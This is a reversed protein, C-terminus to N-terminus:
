RVLLLWGTIKPLGEKPDVVYYYTGAPLIRGNRTGNWPKAYGQSFFVQQGYRDFVTVEAGPYTDLNTILWQDNIGDNNPSFTNPIGIHKYVRVFVDSSAEGCMNSIVHLTYTINDTAGAIVPTLSSADNLYISPTWYYIINDGTASGHLQGTYGEFVNISQGADAKPNKLVTITMKTEPQTEKCSSNSVAATYTTTIKPRAIPNPIDDHDLGEAPTWKFIDANVSPVFLPVSQGECITVDNMTGVAAKDYVKVTTTKFSPCGNLTAKVTYDGEASKDAHTTIIPSAGTWTNGGPGTWEYTGSGAGSASLQLPLNICTSTIAPLTIAPTQFVSIILPDSYIRCNEAGGKSGSLIGLRYEYEGAVAKSPPISLTLTQAGTIDTWAGNNIKRQWQYSPNDYGIPQGGILIYNFDDGECLRQEAKNDISGFGAQILPGCPSVTIDDLVLDNGNGGKGNNVMEVIVDSGDNPASFLTAYQIWHAQDSTADIDGTTYPPVLLSRDSAKRINFTINPKTFGQTQPLDRLINAIYAAFQYTTGPCLKNGDIKQTYFIGPQESANVLMFYGDPDGTHDKLLTHWTGGKCSTSRMSSAITYQGDEVGCAPAFFQYNTVGGTLPSGQEPGSGFTEDVVPAGLSGNCSLTQGIASGTLALLLAFLVIAPFSLRM